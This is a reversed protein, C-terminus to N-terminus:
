YLQMGSYRIELSWLYEDMIRPNESNAIYSNYSFERLLSSFQM